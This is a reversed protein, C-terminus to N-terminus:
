TRKRELGDENDTSVIQGLRVQGPTMEMMRAGWVKTSRRRLLNAGKVGKAISALRSRKEIAEKAVVRISKMRAAPKAFVAPASTITQLQPPRKLVPLPKINANNDSDSADMPSVPPSSNGHDVLIPKDLDHNPFFEELNDFLVDPPPRVAWVDEHKAFSNKRSLDTAGTNGSGGSSASTPTNPSPPVRMPSNLGKRDDGITYEPSEARHLPRLDGHSSISSPASSQSPTPISPFEEAIASFQPTPIETVKPNIQVTLPPRNGRGSGSKRLSSKKRLPPSGKDQSSKRSITPKDEVGIPKVAWLSEDDDDDPLDFAPADEFSINASEKFRVDTTGTENSAPERVESEKTNHAPTINLASYPSMSSQWETPPSDDAINKTLNTDVSIGLRAGPSPARKPPVFIPELAPSGKPTVITPPAMTIISGAFSSKKVLDAIASSGRSFGAPPGSNDEFETFRERVFRDDDTSRRTLTSQSDSLRRNHGRGLANEPNRQTAVVTATRSPLLPFQPPAPARRQAKIGSPTRTPLQQQPQAVPPKEPTPSYKFYPSSRPQSFDLFPPEKSIVRFSGASAPSVPLSAQRTPQQRTPQTIVKAGWLKEFGPDEHGSPRRRPGPSTSVDSYVYPAEDLPINNESGGSATRSRNVRNKKAREAAEFMRTNVDDKHNGAGEDSRATFYDPPGANMTGTGDDGDMTKAYESGYMELPTTNYYGKRNPDESISTSRLDRGDKNSDPVTLMTGQAPRLAQPPLTLRGPSSAPKRVEPKLLFKLTGKADGGTCANLLGDDDLATADEATGSLETVFIATEKPKMGFKQCLRERIMTSDPGTNSLDCGKFTDGDQTVQAWLISPIAYQPPLLESPPRASPLSSISAALSAPRAEDIPTSLSSSDLSSQSNNMNYKNYSPQPPLPPSM